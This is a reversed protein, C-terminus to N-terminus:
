IGLQKTKQKYNRELCDQLNKLTKNTKKISTFFSQDSWARHHSFFLVQSRLVCQVKSLYPMWASALSWNVGWCLSSRRCSGLMFYTFTFTFTRLRCWCGMEVMIATGLNGGWEQKQQDGHANAKLSKGLTWSMEMNRKEYLGQPHNLPELLM